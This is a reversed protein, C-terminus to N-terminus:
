CAVTEELQTMCCDQPREEEIRLKVQAKKEECVPSLLKLEKSRMQTM